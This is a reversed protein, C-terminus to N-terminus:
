DRYGPNAGLGRSLPLSFYVLTVVVAVDSSSRPCEFLDEHSQIWRKLAM